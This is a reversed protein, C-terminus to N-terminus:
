LYEMPEKIYQVEKLIQPGVYPSLGNGTVVEVKTNKMFLWNTKSTNLFAWFFTNQPM